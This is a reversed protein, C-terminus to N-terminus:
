VGCSTNSNGEGTRGDETLVYYVLTLPVILFLFDMGISVPAAFLIPSPTGLWNAWNREFVNQIAVVGFLLVALCLATLRRREQPDSIRRWAAALMVSGALLYVISVGCWGELLGVQVGPRYGPVVNLFLLPSVGATDQILGVPAASLVQSWPRSLVEPSYILAVASSIIPLGFIVGPAFVLFRRWKQSLRFSAFDAFFALWLLPALLCSATALGIPVALVAPLHSLGAAWGSSPYGEAVSGVALMLAVLSARFRQSRSFGIYIALLLLILRVFYFALVQVFQLENWTHWAPENIVLQLSHPVGGRRIRLDIPQNLEFHARAVFWDPM